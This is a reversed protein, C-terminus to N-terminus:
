EGLLWGWSKWTVGLSITMGAALPLHYFLLYFWSNPNLLFAPGSSSDFYSMRLVRSVAAVGVLVAAVYFFRYYSEIKTVVQWKHTLRALILLTSVLSVLGATGLVAFLLRM